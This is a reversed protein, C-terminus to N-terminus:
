ALSGEPSGLKLVAVRHLVCLRHRANTHVCTVHFILSKM